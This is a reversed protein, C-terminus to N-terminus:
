GCRKSAQQMTEVGQCMDMLRHWGRWITQWGPLGDSRRALFGGLRAVAVLASRNTWGEKPMGFKGGLIALAEPGFVGQAVPDDPLARALQRADLLRAAILALVAVLSEIRYAQELQSKEVGVGTKLAKHYEEIWWRAAYRGVIRRVESWRACPLSTLLIWHLPEIGAPAGTERVEIVNITLAAKVGGARDPGRVQVTTARAQVTATRAPHGPRARLKVTTQGLVPSEAVRAKLHEDSGVLARDRFGRIIFDLGHRQCREIPEYFDAERDAIFIWQCGAPPSGTEELMKAWRQSERPRNARQRWNELKKTGPRGKRAWCQQGWLGALTGEPEQDLNWGEVRVALTSHLYMGRGCGDGIYGLGETAAHGTYDLETTDEILLYEGAQRCEQRTHNWHPTLIREFSNDPRNLFRYGAKLDKCATFAQPLTGGPNEALSTAIKVLRNTRRQDGLQAMAFESQAWQAATMLTTHM